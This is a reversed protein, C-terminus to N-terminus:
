PALSKLGCSVLQVICPGSKAEEELRESTNRMVPMPNAGIGCKNHKFEIGVMRTWNLAMTDITMM